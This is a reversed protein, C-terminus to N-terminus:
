LWSTRALIPDITADMTMSFDETAGSDRELVFISCQNAVFDLGWAATIALEREGQPFLFGFPECEVRMHIGPAGAGECKVVGRAGALGFGHQVGRAAQPGHDCRGMVEGALRPQRHQLVAAARGLRGDGYRRGQGNDIRM